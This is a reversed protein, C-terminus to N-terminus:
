QNNFIKRTIENLKMSNSGKIMIIDGESCNLSIKEYLLKIDNYHFSQINSPLNKNIIQSYKGITYVISPKASVISHVMEKHLYESDNGLELMDGIVCIKRKVNKLSIKKLTNLSARLSLPNSNYSDDFLYIQKRKFMIKKLKGRGDEPELQSIKPILESINLGLIKSVSLVLLRNLVWHNGIDNCFFNAKEDLLRVIVNIKGKKYRKLAVVQFDSNKNFGFSFNNQCSISAKKSLIEFFDCDRPVLSIGNSSHKFIDSKEIAIDKQSNFNSIHAPGINTIISINPSSIESLKDIEGTHSMGLELICIETKPPMRALSLPMGIQNNLNGPNYHIKFKSSITQRLWEKITTKGTSGTICIVKLKKSVKRSFRALKQIAEISDKVPILFKGDPILKVIKQLNKNEVLSVIAGNKFADLIYDHGDFNQGKIPIFLCNKVCKSSNIVLDDVELKQTIKSELAKNLNNRTWFAM